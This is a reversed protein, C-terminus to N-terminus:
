RIIIEKYARYYVDQRGYQTLYELDQYLDSNKEILEVIEPNYMTGAGNKLEGFLAAFDKGKTYNRGLMDTAADMCDSVTILDIVPKVRSVTNDFEEPYGRKGDYSKHHGLMVDYFIEFAADKHLLSVAQRPHCKIVSFEADSLRRSQRNIVETLQCKGVDHLLACENIYELLAGKKAIVKSVDEYGPIGVFYEPKEKIMAAAIRVGIESVMLSHIYTIPQRSIILKLLMDRKKDMTDLYKETEHFWEACVNSMVSTWFGFPIHMHVDTVLPVFSQMYQRREEEGIKAFEFLDFIACASNHYDLVRLMTEWEDGTYDPLAYQQIHTIMEEILLKPDKGSLLECKKEARFLCGEEDVKGSQMNLEKIEAVLRVFRRQFEETMDLVYDESFLIDDRIQCICSKIEENEGDLEQVKPSNWLEMAMEYVRFVNRKMEENVQGVPSILNDYATFFCRRIKPNRIEAYHDRFSLVKEFYDVTKSIENSGLIREYFEFNEFALVHYLFIQKEIDGAKEYYALLPTAMTEMVYLDDYGGYYLTELATYTEEALEKTMPTELIKRVESFRNENEAFVQRVKRSRELLIEKWELFSKEQMIAEDLEWGLDCNKIYIETFEKIAGM